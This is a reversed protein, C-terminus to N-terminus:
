AAAAHYGRATTPPTLATTIRADLGKQLALLTHEILRFPLRLLHLLLFVAVAVLFGALRWIGHQELVDFTSM